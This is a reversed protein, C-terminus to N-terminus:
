EQEVIIEVDVNVGKVLNVTAQYTGLNKIDDGISVSKRDVDFGKEKLANAIQLSTISGFIKGSAGAKTRITVSTGTLKEALAAADKQLKEMKFARQREEEARMKRESESAVVAIGKPILYNRAYGSKVSVIDNKEGLGKHFKKLIIEM